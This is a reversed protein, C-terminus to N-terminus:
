RACRSARSPTACATSRRCCARLPARRHAHEHWRRWSSRVPAPDLTLLEAPRAVGGEVRMRSALLRVQLSQLPRSRAAAHRRLAAHPRGRRRRARGAGRRHCRVAAGAPRARPCRLLLADRLRRRSPLWCRPPRTLRSRVEGEPRPPLHKAAPSLLTVPVHPDGSAKLAGLLNTWVPSAPTLPTGLPAALTIAVTPRREAAAGAGPGQRHRQYARAFDEYDLVSVARGLTRTTLPISRRADSAPEPDTGGEAALPNSVSKLGLPRTMLQTLSDAAVNGDIGLGKRYTARRQQHREAAARRAAGDGFGVFM